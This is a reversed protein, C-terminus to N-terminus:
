AQNQERPSLAKSLHFLELCWYHQSASCLSRHVNLCRYLISNHWYIDVKTLCSKNESWHLTKWDTRFGFQVREPWMSHNCQWWTFVLQSENCDCQAPCEVPKKSLTVEMSINHFGYLCSFEMQGSHLQFHLAEHVSLWRIQDSLIKKEWLTTGLCGAGSYSSHENLLCM